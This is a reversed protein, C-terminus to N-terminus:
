HTRKPTTKHAGTTAGKPRAHPHKPEAGAHEAHDGDPSTAELDFFADGGDSAAVIFTREIQGLVRVDRKSSGPAFSLQEDFAGDSTSQPPRGEHDVAAFEGRRTGDATDGNAGVDIARVAFPRASDTARLTRAVARRV